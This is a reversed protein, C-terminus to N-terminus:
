KAKRLVCARNFDQVSMGGGCSPVEVSGSGSRFEFAEGSVEVEFSRGTTLKM